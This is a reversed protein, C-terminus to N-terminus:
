RCVSSLRSRDGPIVVAALQGARVSAGPELPLTSPDTIPLRESFQEGRDHITGLALRRPRAASKNWGM